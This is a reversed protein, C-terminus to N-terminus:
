PADCASSNDIQRWEYAPTGGGDSACHCLRTWKGSPQYHLLKGVNDANCTSLPQPQLTASFATIAVFDVRLASITLNLSDPSFIRVNCRPEDFNGDWDFCARNATRLMAWGSGSRANYPGILFLRDFRPEFGDLMRETPVFYGGGSSSAAAGGSTGGFSGGFTGASAATSFLALFLAARM